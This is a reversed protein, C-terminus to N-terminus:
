GECDIEEGRWYVIFTSDNTIDDIVTQLKKFQGESINDMARDSFDEYAEGNEELIILHEEILEKADIKISKPKAVFWSINKDLENEKLDRAEFVYEGYENIVYEDDKLKSLKKM